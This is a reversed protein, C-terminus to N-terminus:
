PCPQVETAETVWGWVGDQCIVKADTIVFPIAVEAFDVNLSLTDATQVGDNDIWVAGLPPSAANDTLWEGFWDVTYVEGNWSLWLDESGYVPEPQKELPTFIKITTM